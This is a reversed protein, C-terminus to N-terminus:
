GEQRAKRMAAAHFTRPRILHVITRELPWRLGTGCGGEVPLKYVEASKVIRSGAVLHQGIIGTGGRRSGAFRQLKSGSDM